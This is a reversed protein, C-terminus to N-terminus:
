KWGFHEWVRQTHDSPLFRRISFQNTASVIWLADRELVNRFCSYAGKLTKFLVIIKLYLIREFLLLFSRLRKLATKSNKPFDLTGAKSFDAVLGRNHNRLHSKQAAGAQLLSESGNILHQLVHLDSHLSLWAFVWDAVGGVIIAHHKAAFLERSPGIKKIKM